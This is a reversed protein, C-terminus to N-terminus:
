NLFHRCGRRGIAPRKQRAWHLRARQALESCDDRSGLRREEGDALRKPWKDVATVAGVERVVCSHIAQQQRRDRESSGSVADRREVLVALLM